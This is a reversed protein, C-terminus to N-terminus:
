QRQNKENGNATQILTAHPVTQVFYFKTKRKKQEPHITLVTNSLVVTETLCTFVKRSNNNASKQSDFISM